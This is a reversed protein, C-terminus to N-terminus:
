NCVKFLPITSCIHFIEIIGIYYFSSHFSLIRYIASQLNLFVEVHLHQSM